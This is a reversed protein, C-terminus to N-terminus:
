SKASLDRAIRLISWPPVPCPLRMQFRMQPNKPETLPQGEGDAMVPAQFAFPKRDPGVAELE